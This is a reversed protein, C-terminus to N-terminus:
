SPESSISEEGEVWRLRQECDALAQLLTEIVDLSNTDRLMSRIEDM